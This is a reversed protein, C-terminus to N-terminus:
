FGAACSLFALTAVTITGGPVAAIPLAASDLTTSLVPPTCDPLGSGDPMTAVADVTYAVPPLAPVSFTTGGSNFTGSSPNAPPVILTYTACDTGAPCSAGATTSVLSTSGPLAPITVLIASGGSPTVSQLASVAADIATPMSAADTSTVTGTLTAATTTAGAVPVVPIDGVNAGVPAAFVVTAGYTAGSPAVASVVLDYTGESLPCIFFTGDSSSALTQSVVRDVGAADPREAAVIVTGGPIPLGTTSDVVRGSLVLNNLAVEGAHLTPKLRWAGNGQQIVSRCADFDINIDAAEGAVLVIGGGAIQGPPIKLGTNAQSSLLLLELGTSISDVCNYGGTSACHNPSPVAAGPGPNNSLLHIRIQQYTGIPLGTTSGLTTLLCQTSVLDLLDVQLPDNTLDVLDVWGAENSGAGSSLHARVKTVTVWVHSLDGTPAMCTPPDSLHVTVTGSTAAPNGGDGGGGGGCGSSTVALTLGLAVVVFALATARVLRIRAM